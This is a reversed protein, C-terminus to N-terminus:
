PSVLRRATSFLMRGRWRYGYVLAMMANQARVLPPQATAVFADTRSFTAALEREMGQQLAAITPNTAGHYRIARPFMPAYYDREDIRAARADSITGGGAGLASYQRGKEAHERVPLLWGYHDYVYPIALSAGEIGVLHEHVTGEWRLGPSVRFFSIRRDISTYWRFSRLYHRVYGDVTAITEPLAHLRSAIRRALPRHVEDADIFAVWAGNAHRRHLELVRNRATAFDVFPAPDIFLTGRRAFSSEELVRRNESQALGSNENVLLIDAVGELSALSSALFREPRAGVILHAAIRVNV